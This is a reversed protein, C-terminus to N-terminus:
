RQEAAQWDAEPDGTGDTLTASTVVMGGPRQSLVAEAFPLTPDVWHRYFPRCRDDRSGDPGAARGRVLRRLRRADAGDLTALMDRWAQDPVAVPPGAGPAM